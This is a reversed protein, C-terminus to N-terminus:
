PCTPPLCAMGPELIAGVRPRARGRALGLLADAAHRASEGTRSVRAAILGSVLPTAFSTGSWRAMERDFHTVEGIRPPEEYYYDGDPYANIVDTGLAYVDVWSGYNSYGARRGADDLAGVAVAWPFAAPWFPARDGDNGAAAVLVTGKLDRLRQEWLVQFGLSPLNHRTTTGASMSIIDPTLELAEYLATIIDQEYVAGGHTLFGKVVVEARPALCRLVGAVFTGHGTYRGIHDPDYAEADGTVGALWHHEPNVLEPIFGTDVVLALVGTGDCDADTSVAPYPADQGPNDPETAPCCCAPAVYFVHDPTAVGAGLRADILDLAALTDQVAVATIGALLANAVFEDADETRDPGGLLRRVREVDSDRVLILGRRYLFQMDALDGSGGTAVGVDALREVILEVQTRLRARQQPPDDWWPPTGKIPTDQTAGADDSQTM